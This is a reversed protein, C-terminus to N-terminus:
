TGTLEGYIGGHRIQCIFGGGLMHGQVSTKQDRGNCTTFVNGACGFWVYTMGHEFIVYFM